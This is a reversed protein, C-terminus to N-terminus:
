PRGSPGPPRRGPDPSGPPPSGAAPGPPPPPRSLPKFPEVQGQVGGVPQGEHVPALGSGAGQGESQPGADLPLVPEQRHHDGAAGGGRRSGAEPSRSPSPRGRALGQGEGHVEPVRVGVVRGLIPGVRGVLAHGEQAAGAVQRGEGQFRRHGGAQIQIQRHHRHDALPHPRVQGPVPVEGPGHQGEPGEPRHVQGVPRGVDRRGRPGRRTRRVVRRGPGLQQGLQCGKPDQVTGGGVVVSEHVWAEGRRGAPGDGAQGAKPVAHRHADVPGCGPKEPIGVRVAVQRGQHQHVLLAM